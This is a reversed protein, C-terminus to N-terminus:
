CVRHRVLTPATYLAPCSTHTLQWYAFHSTHNLNPIRNSIIPSTMVLALTPTLTLNIEYYYQAIKLLVFIACKPVLVSRCWSLEAGNGIRHRLTWLCKRVPASTTVIHGSVEAGTSFVVLCKPVM